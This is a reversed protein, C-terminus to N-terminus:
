TSQLCHVNQMCHLFHTGLTKTKNTEYGRGKHGYCSTQEILHLYFKPHAHTENATNRNGGLLSLVAKKGLYKCSEKERVWPNPLFDVPFLVRWCREDERQRNTLRQKSIQVLRM